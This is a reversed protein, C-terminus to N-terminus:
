QRRLPDLFRPIIPLKLVETEGVAGESGIAAQLAVSTAVVLSRLPQPCTPHIEVYYGDADGTVTFPTEDTITRVVAVEAGADDTVVVERQRRDMVQIVGVRRKAHRIEYTVRRLGKTRIAEGVENGHADSILLVTRARWGPFAVTFVTAGDVDVVRLAAATRHGLGYRALEAGVEEDPVYVGRGILREDRDFVRYEPREGKRPDRRVVLIPEALLQPM